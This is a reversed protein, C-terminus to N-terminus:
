KCWKAVDQQADQVMKQRAADDAVIREGKADYTVIRASEELGRLNNRAQACKQEREKAEAALKTEEEEQKARRKRFEVEQEAATKPGEVKAEKDKDKGPAPAAPPPSTKIDVKKEHKADAPPPRDSYQVKGDKDTWKYLQGYAALPLALFLIISAIRPM